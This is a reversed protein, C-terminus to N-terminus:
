KQVIQALSLLRSSIQIGERRAAEPNVQIRIKAGDTKLNVMGGDEAFTDAEGVTLVAPARLDSLMSRWRTRGLASFFLIRCELANQVTAVKRVVLRREGIMQGSIARELAGAIPSEGFLCISIPDIASKFAAPPWEVFKTLNYLVAAKLQHEEVPQATAPSALLAVGSLIALRLRRETSRGRTSNWVTM